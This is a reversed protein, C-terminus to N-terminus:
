RALGTPRPPMIQYRKARHDLCLYVLGNTLVSVTAAGAVGWVPIVALDVIFALLSAGALTAALYRDEGTSYLVQYPIQWLANLTAAGVLLSVFTFSAAFEEQGLLVPIWPSIGIMAAGTVASILLTRRLYFQQLQRFKEHAGQKFSEVLRPLSHMGVMAYVVVPLLSMISQWFSFIGAQEVSIQRAVIFRDMYALCMTAISTIYFLRSVKVGRILWTIYNRPLSLTTGGFARVLQIMGFLIAAFNATFWLTYFTLPAVQVHTVYALAAGAWGWLGTKIAYIVNATHPRQLVTFLRSLEQALHDSVLIAVFWGLPVPILDDAGAAILSIACTIILLYIAGDLGAQGVMVRARGALTRRALMERIAFLHFDLGIVFLFLNIAGFFLGFEGAARTGGVDALVLMALFKGSVAALRLILSLIEKM